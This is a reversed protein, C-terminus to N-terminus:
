RGQLSDLKKKLRGAASKSIGMEEAADRLSYDEALLRELWEMRSDEVDRTVWSLAAGEAYLQAEFPNAETGCIGRAKTLHVEFRAGEEAHYDQPRRLSIVTDLVDEKASTGRQDGGKGQHHILFTSLGRRRLGLLWGQVPLWSEEDNSRGHRALTALNDLVILDVGELLPEIAAQGESTALNPMPGDQMDSTLIRLYDSEPPESESGRVLSALRDQLTRAPMEGDIFLVRAAAPATWRGFVSGGSAVAYAVSLSIFTKGIGRAAHLMCLGQQPLVPSLLMKREPFRLTLFEHATVCHLRVPAAQEPMPAPAPKCRTQFQTAVEGPGMLCALDNFDLKERGERRPVALLGNVARTAETAKALGIGGPAPYKDSPADYDAALIIERDAYKDRAMEAVARLNGANFAVLVAYGTAAHISAATAYGEAIVLPGAKGGDKAAIPYYGGATRGDKLFLKGGDGAIFQLSQVKGSADLVPVVLRGNKALRLGLSPVQKKALYPHDAPAPPASKWISAAWTAAAAQRKAREAQAEAKAVEIRRRLAQREADTMDWDATATWTGTDDTQWNQWWVSAPADLHVCYAGDTGKPKDATGCRHLRGDAQIGGQLVLGAEQLRAEFQQLIDSSM